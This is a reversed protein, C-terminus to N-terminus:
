VSLEKIIRPLDIRRIQHLAVLTTLLLVVLLIAGALLYTSSYIVVDFSFFESNYLGLFYGAGYISIPIGVLIAIVVLIIHELLLIWGIEGVKFGLTRMTAYESIRERVNISMTNYIVTTAIVGGFLSIIGVFGTYLQLMNVWDREIDETSEIYLVDYDRYLRSKIIDEDAGPELKILVGSTGGSLSLIRQLEGFSLYIVLGAPDDVYGAVEVSYELPPPPNEVIYESLATDVIRDVLRTLDGNSLITEVIDGVWDGYEKPLSESLGDVIVRYIFNDIEGPPISLAENLVKLSGQYGSMNIFIDLTANNILDEDGWNSLNFVPIIYNILDTYTEPLLGSAMSISLTENLVNMGRNYPERLLDDIPLTRETFSSNWINVYLGLYNNLLESDVGGFSTINSLAERTMNAALQNVVYVDVTDAESVKMNNLIRVWTSIYLSPVGYIFQTLNGVNDRAMHIGSYLETLSDKSDLINSRMDILLGLTENYMADRSENIYLWYLSNVPKLDLTINEGISINPNTLFARSLYAGSGGGGDIYKLGYLRSGEVIGRVVVSEKEGGLDIRIYSEIFPEVSDVGDLGVIDDVVSVNYSKTFFVKLDYKQIDGFFQNISYDMSDYFSLPIVILSFSLALGIVTYISRSWRRIMNRIPMRVTNSMNSFIRRFRLRPARGVDMGSYRMSEAPHLRSVRFATYVGSSCVFVLSLLVGVVITVLDIRTYIIPLSIQTAFIETIPYSFLIGLAVGSVSGLLGIVLAYKFYHLVIDRRNYGLGLFLGIIPTQMQIIRSLVIFTAVASITLFFIPIGIALSRLSDVMLTIIYNSPQVDRPVIEKVGYGSFISDLRSAVDDIDVGSDVKIVANNAVGGVDFVEDMVSQPMYYVGWRRLIDPMHELISKAPWLYEPSIVIGSINFPIYGDGTKFYVTDGVRLGHHNAFGREVLVYYGEGGYEGDVLLLKNISPESDDPISIIWATITENSDVGFVVPEELLLRVEFSNIGDVKALLERYTDRDIYSTSLWIDAFNLDEYPKDISYRLNNYSSLLGIFFSIGVAVIVIVAIFQLKNRGIDRLLKLNLKRM